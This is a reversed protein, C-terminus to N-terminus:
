QRQQNQQRLKMLEDFIQQPTKAGGNSQDGSTSSDSSSSAPAPAPTDPQPPPPASNQQSSAAPVDAVPQSQQRPAEDEGADFRAANPNPPTPGGTRTTLVLESKRTGAGQVYLMNSGTGDLLDNLVQAPTGPGYTGFVREEAVGGTITIGATRSIDRLIQNLSSNTAVISLKGGSYNVSARRAPVEAVRETSTPAPAATNEPQTAPQTPRPAEITPQTAPIGYNEPRSRREPVRNLQQGQLNSGDPLRLPQGSPQSADGNQAHLPLGLSSSLLVITALRNQTKNWM